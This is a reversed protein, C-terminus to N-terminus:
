CIYLSITQSVMKIKQDNLSCFGSMLRKGTRERVILHLRQKEGPKPQLDTVYYSYGIKISHKRTVLYLKLPKVHIFLSM